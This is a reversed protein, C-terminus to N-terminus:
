CSFVWVKHLLPVEVLVYIRVTQTAAALSLYGPYAGLMTLPISFGQMPRTVTSAAWLACLPALNPNRSWLALKHLILQWAQVCLQVGGPIALKVRLSQSTTTVLSHPPEALAVLAPRLAALVLM